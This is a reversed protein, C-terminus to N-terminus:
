HDSGQPIGWAETVLGSGGKHSLKWKSMGGFKMTNMGLTRM